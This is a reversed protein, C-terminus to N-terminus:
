LLGNDQYNNFIKKLLERTEDVSRNQQIENGESSIWCINEGSQIQMDTLGKAKRPVIHGVQFKSEGHTRNLLEDKFDTFLLNEMTIPCKCSEPIIEGQAIVKEEELSQIIDVPFAKFKLIQTILKYEIEQCDRVFAFEISDPHVEWRYERNTPYYGTQSRDTLYAKTRVKSYIEKFLKYYDPNKTADILFKELNFIKLILQNRTFNTVKINDVKHISDDNIKHQYDIWYFKTWNQLQIFNTRNEEIELFNVLDSLIRIFIDVCNEYKSYRPDEVKLHESWRRTYNASGGKERVIQIFFSFRFIGTLSSFIQKETLVKELELCIKAIKPEQQLIPLVTKCLLILNFKEKKVNKDSKSKEKSIDIAKLEEDIITKVQELVNNM